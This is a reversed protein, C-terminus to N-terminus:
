DPIYQLICGPQVQLIKCCKDLLGMSLHSRNHIVRSLYSQDVGVRQAFEKQTLGTQAIHFQIAQTQIM